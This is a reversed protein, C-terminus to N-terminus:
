TKLKKLNEEEGDLRKQERQDSKEQEELEKKELQYADVAERRCFTLVYRSYIMEEANGENGLYGPQHHFFWCSSDFEGDGWLTEEAPNINVM